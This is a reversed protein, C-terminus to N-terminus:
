NTWDGASRTSEPRIGATADCYSAGALPLPEKQKQQQKNLPQREALTTTNQM